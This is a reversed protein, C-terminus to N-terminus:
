LMSFTFASSRNFNLRFIGESSMKLAFSFESSRHTTIAVLHACRDEFKNWVPFRADLQFSEMCQQIGWLLTLDSKMAVHNCLVYGFFCAFNNFSLRHSSVGCGSSSISILLRLIRKKRLPSASMLSSPLSPM